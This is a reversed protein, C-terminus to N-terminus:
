LHLIKDVRQSFEVFEKYCLYKREFYVSRDQNPQYIELKLQEYDLNDISQDTLPKNALLDETKTAELLNLAACRAVLGAGMVMFDVNELSMKIAKCNLVDALVQMYFDNKMLGGSVLIASLEIKLTEVILKLEFVLSEITAIYHDRLSMQSEATLGYIGGKLRPNALPSRNGHYTPLVHLDNRYESKNITKNLTNIIEKITKGSKLLEKGENSSEICMEILKGTLSQGSELLHYNELVVDKYPGWIGRTFNSKSSLLMHCSSTGALSCFTSEITLDICYNKLPTSLMALMGSHADILSTGIITELPGDLQDDGLIGLERASEICLKGSITGPKLVTQGFKAQLKNDFSQLIDCHRHHDADYGWKCTLCCLSRPCLSPNSRICRYALWDPLEFLGDASKLRQPENKQLWLLKSLSFEPSCVGGFQSLVKSGGDTVQKAEDMARHDMWLIVDRPVNTSKEDYIVLSCTSSFGISKISLPDIGSKTLCEQSCECIAAWIETSSQEFRVGEQHHSIDKEHSALIKSKRFEDGHFSIIALRVSTTGVDVAIVNM